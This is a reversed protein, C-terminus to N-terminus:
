NPSTPPQPPGTPPWPEEPEDATNGQACYRAGVIAENTWAWFICFETHRTKQFIDMYCIRGHYYIAFHGSKIKAIEDDTFAVDRDKDPYSAKGFFHRKADPMAMILKCPAYAISGKLPYDLVNIGSLITSNYVPTQGVNDLIGQVHAKGGVKFNDLKDQARFVVYARLQREETDKAVAIQTEAADAHRKAEATQNKAETISALAAGYAWYAIEAAIIAAILTAASVAVSAWMACVQRRWFHRRWLM